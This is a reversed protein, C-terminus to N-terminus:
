GDDDTGQQMPDDSDPPQMADQGDGGPAEVEADSFPPLVVPDQGPVLEGEASGDHPGAGLEPAEFNVFRDVFADAVDADFDDCLQRYGWAVYGVQGGDPLPEPYEAVILFPEDANEGWELLAARSEDDLEPSYWAVVYGHELNHLLLREDVHQDYVGTVVVSGYHPGSTAPRHDYLESPPEVEIDHSSGLDDPEEVPECGAAEAAEAEGALIDSAETRAEWWRWGLLGAVGAIALLVVATAALRRRRARRKAAEQAERKAQRRQKQRQRKSLPQEEDAM